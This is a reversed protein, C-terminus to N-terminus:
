RKTIITGGCADVNNGKWYRLVQVVWPYHVSAEKSNMIRSSAKKTPMLGCNPYKKQHEKDIAPGKPPDQWIITKVIDLYFFILWLQVIKIVFHQNVM